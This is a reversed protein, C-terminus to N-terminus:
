SHHKPKQSNGSPHETSFIAKRKKYENTFIIATTANQLGPYGDPVNEGGEWKEVQRKSVGCLNAMEAATIANRKRARRGDKTGGGAQVPPVAPAAAPPPLAAPLPAAAPLAAPTSAPAAPKRTDLNKRNFLPCGPLLLRGKQTLCVDDVHIYGYHRSFLLMDPCVKKPDNTQIIGFASFAKVAITLLADETFHVSNKYIFGFLRTIRLFYGIVDDLVYQRENSVMWYFPTDRYIRDRVLINKRTVRNSDPTIALQVLLKDLSWSDDSNLNRYKTAYFKPTMDVWICTGWEGNTRRRYDWCKFKEQLPRYVPNHKIQEASELEGKFCLFAEDDAAFKERMTNQPDLISWVDDYEM